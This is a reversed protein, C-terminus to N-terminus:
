TFLPPVVLEEKIHTLQEPNENDSPTFVSIRLTLENVNQNLPTPQNCSYLICIFVPIIPTKM